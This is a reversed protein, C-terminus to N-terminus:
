GSGKSTGSVCAPAPVCVARSNTLSGLLKRARTLGVERIETRRRQQVTKGNGPTWVNAAAGRPTSQRGRGGRPPLQFHLKVSRAATILLLQQKPASTQRRPLPCGASIFAAGRPSSMVLECPQVNFEASQTTRSVGRPTAKTPGKEVDHLRPQRGVYSYCCQRSARDGTHRGGPLRKAEPVVAPLGCGELLLGLAGPLMFLPCVTDAPRTACRCAAQQLHLEAAGSHRCRCCCCHRRCCSCRRCLRTLKFM